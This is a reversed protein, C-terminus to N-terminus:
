KICGSENVYLNTHLITSYFFLIKVNSTELLRIEEVKEAEDKVQEELEAITSRFLTESIITKKKYTFSKYVPTKIIM